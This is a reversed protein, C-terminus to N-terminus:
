ERQRAFVWWPLRNCGAERLKSCLLQTGTHAEVRGELAMTDKGSGAKDGLKKSENDAYAVLRVNGMGKSLGKVASNKGREAGLCGQRSV